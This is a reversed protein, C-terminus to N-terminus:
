AAEKEDGISPSPRTREVITIRRSPALRNALAALWRAARERLTPRGDRALREWAAARLRAQHEERALAGDPDLLNVNLSM